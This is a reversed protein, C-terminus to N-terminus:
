MLFMELFFDANQVNTIENENKYITIIPVASQTLVMSIVHSFYNRGGSPLM